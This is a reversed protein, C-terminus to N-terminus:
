PDPIGILDGVLSFQLPPMRCQPRLLWKVFFWRNQMKQGSIFYFNWNEIALKTNKGIYYM